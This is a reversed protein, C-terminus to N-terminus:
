LYNKVRDWEVHWHNTDTYYIVQFGFVEFKKLIADITVRESTSLHKGRLDVAYGLPHLSTTTDSKRIGPSRGPRLGSTLVGEKGFSKCAYDYADMVPHMVRKVNPDVGDKIFLHIGRRKVM